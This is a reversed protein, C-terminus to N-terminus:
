VSKIQKIIEIFHRMRDDVSHGDAHVRKMGATAIRKIQHPNNKLWLAKEIFEEKSSFFVAEEDEKFMITLDETRESMLLSGCAPIEFCRRTYTDRNLKSLFCLCIKAGCLAKTYDEGNAEHVTGFYDATEGLIQQTWYKGGFLRVHLGSKVAVKLYEERGDPEFHGVFVVDCSFRMKEQDTLLVPKNWEPVFYPMLIEVNKAGISHAEDVNVKRFVLVLDVLKYIKLHWFWKFHHHWPVNGHSKPGFPDDNNYSVIIASSEKRIKAITSPLIHTAKWLLVVNPNYKKIAKVIEINLKILASGAFPLANQYKGFKGSFFNSWRFQIVDYGLRILANECAKEYIPYIWDGAILIKM